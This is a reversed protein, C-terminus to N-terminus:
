RGEIALSGHVIVGSTAGLALLRIDTKRGVTIKYDRLDVNYAVGAPFDIYFERSIPTENEYDRVQICATGAQARASLMLDTVQWSGAKDPTTYFCTLGVGAGAPAKVLASVVTFTGPVGGSYTGGTGTKVVYIDGANVAGSGATAGVIGFVRFWKLTSTVATQGDLVITEEQYLGTEGLGIIKVSNMGTGEDADDASSSSIDVTAPTALLGGQNLLINCDGVDAFTIPGNTMRGKVLVYKGDYRISEHM